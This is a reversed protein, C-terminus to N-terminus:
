FAYDLRVSANRPEAYFAQGWALTNYHKDDAVNRLNVTARVKDTVRISATLDLVVYAQQTVTVPTAPGTDEISTASQWRIAGGVKLDRLQPISYTTALKLVRRPIYDRRATDDAGDIKLLTVGGNVSWRDTIQGAVSGEVGTVRTDVGQYYANGQLDLGVQEALGNQVAHFVAGTLYVRKDFLNAKFGGEYSYGHAPALRVHNIDAEIQPNFIDTYSAYLSVLPTLDYILGAYPSVKSESRAQDVGYSVGTSKLSVATVGVVAKLRDALNLRSSVYGRYMRDVTDSQLVPDPYTPQAVWQQGWSFISPYDPYDSSFGEYEHGVSRSASFGV